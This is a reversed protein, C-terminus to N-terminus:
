RKTESHYPILWCYAVFVTGHGAGALPVTHRHVLSGEQLFWTRLPSGGVGVEKVDSGDVDVAELVPRRQVADEKCLKPATHADANRLFQHGIDQEHQSRDNEPLHLYYPLTYVM